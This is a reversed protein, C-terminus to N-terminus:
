SLRDQSLMTLFMDRYRGEDQFKPSGGFPSEEKQETTVQLFSFGELNKKLSFFRASSAWLKKVKVIM